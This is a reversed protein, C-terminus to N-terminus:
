TRSAPRTRPAPDCSCLAVWKCPPPTSRAASVPAKMSIQGKINASNLVVDKFSAKNQADSQMIPSGGVQLSAANLTGDFSAGIM